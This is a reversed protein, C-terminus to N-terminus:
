QIGYIGKINREATEIIEDIPTDTHAAEGMAQVVFRAATIYNESWPVGRTYPYINEIRGRHIPNNYTSALHEQQQSISPTVGVHKTYNEIAHDSALFYWVFKWAEEKHESQEAIALSHVIDPLYPDDDDPNLRPISGISVKQYLLDGGFDDPNSAQIIGTGYTGDIYFVLQNAPFLRRGVDANHEGPKSVLGEKIMM